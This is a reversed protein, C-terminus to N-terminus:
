DYTIGLEELTYMHNPEMGKYMTGNEFEPFAMCDEVAANLPKVKAFLCESKESRSVDKYVSIIKKYFPRFVTKLYRREAKDLIPPRFWIPSNEWTVGKFMNKFLYLEQCLPDKEFMNIITNRYPKEICVYLDGNRDREIWRFGKPLCGLIVKDKDSIAVDSSEDSSKDSSEDILRKQNLRIKDISIQDISIQTDLSYVNRICETYSGNETAPKGIDVESEIDIEIDIEIEIETPLFNSHPQFKELEDATDTEFQEISSSDKGIRDKGIRYKGIRYQTTMQNDNQIGTEEVM